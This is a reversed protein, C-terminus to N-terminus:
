VVSGHWWGFGGGLALLGALMGPAWPGGLSAWPVRPQARWWRVTAWCLSGIQGATMVALGLPGLLGMVLVSWKIDGSGLRGPEWADGLELLLWVGGAWLLHTWPIWGLALFVGGGLAALLTWRNPIEYHWADTWAVIATM